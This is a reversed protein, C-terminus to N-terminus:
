HVINRYELEFQLNNKEIFQALLSDLNGLSEILSTSLTQLRQSESDDITDLLSQREETVTPPNETKFVAFSNQLRDASDQAGIRELAEVTERAYNGMLVVQGTAIQAAAATSRVEPTAASVKM